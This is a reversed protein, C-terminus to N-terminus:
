TKLYDPWKALLSLGVRVVEEYSEEDGQELAAEMAGMIIAVPAVEHEELARSAVTERPSRGGMFSDIVMQQFEAAFARGQEAATSAIAIMFDPGTLQQM